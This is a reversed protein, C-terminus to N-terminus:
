RTRKTTVRRKPAWRTVSRGDATFRVEQADNPAADLNSHGANFTSGDPFKTVAPDGMLSPIGDAYAFVMEKIQVESNRGRGLAAEIARDRDLILDLEEVTRAGCAQWMENLVAEVAASPQIPDSARVGQELAIFLDPEIPGVRTALFTAPMMKAGKHRAAYLAQALYLLRMLSQPRIVNGTREGQIELWSVVDFTSRIAPRM